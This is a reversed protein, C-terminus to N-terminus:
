TRRSAYSFDELIIAKMKHWEKIISDYTRQITSDLRMRFRLIIQDRATWTYKPCGSDYYIDLEAWIINDSIMDCLDIWHTETKIEEFTDSQVRIKGRDTHKNRNAKPEYLPMKRKRSSRHKNHKRYYKNEPM